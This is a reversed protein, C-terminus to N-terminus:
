HMVMGGTVNIAQGTCYGAADSALFLCVDAVDDPTALRGLPSAASWAAVQEPTRTDAGMETLVYGPCLCNVTIGDAGLEMAAVRTFAMVAAKSAAYAAEGPTGAKAAMSALNVIRGCGAKAMLPAVAKTVLFTSRVNVAFMTDWDAASTQLLPTKAFIGANNVCIDVGGLADAATAVAVDVAAEDVLDVAIPVAGAGIRAATAAVREPQRDLLAVRADALAFREAIRAGIGQAGGTVVVRRGAFAGVMRANEGTCVADPVDPGATRRHRREPRTVDPGM